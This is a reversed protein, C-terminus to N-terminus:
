SRTASISGHWSQLRSWISEANWLLSPIILVILAILLIHIFTILQTTAPHSSHQPAYLEENRLCDNLRREFLKAQPHEEGLVPKALEFARRYMDEADDYRRQMHLVWALNGMIDLTLPHDEGLVQEHLELAERHVPEAEELKDQMALTSALGSMCRLTADNEKGLIRQMSVLTRRYTREAEEYRGLGQLTTAISYTIELVAPHKVGLKQKRLQLIKRFIKEAERYKKQDRLANGLNNMSKLTDPHEGGLVQNMLALGRRHLAEGHEYKGQRCLVQALGVMTILTSHHQRGLANNKLKLLLRLVQEAEEFKGQLCLLVAYDAKTDFADPRKGGPVRETVELTRRYVQEAKDYQRLQYYSLGIRYGLTNDASAIDKQHALVAQGHPLYRMWVDQNELDPYPYEDTLRQFAKTIWKRWERGCQLWNRMALHVLRHIDFSNRENRETIFAYAKLTGIAEAARLKSLQPLLSLPIDEEALLCMSKLYAAAHPNHRSIHQFSIFWTTNIPNQSKAVHKHRNGDEFSRSRLDTMDTDSSQCFGLYEATTVNTNSAMYASAQKIALPLNALFELLRTTSEVDHTQNENLGKQLLNRAEDDRMEPVVIIDQQSIDFGVPTQYNRTTFLISGNGSFPIYNSLVGNAFLLELDDANDIILLWCNSGEDRLASKALTKVVVNDDNIGKIGLQHGIERVASEFTTSDVASVWFVSCDPHMDHVRYAAELAIQTKGIGGIGKLATRQCDDRNANPSIRQLLRRLIDERGIFSENRGFPVIFHGGSNSHSYAGLYQRAGNVLRVIQDEVARYGMDLRGPFKQLNYHHRELPHREVGRSTDLCASAEPVLYDDPLQPNQFPKGIPSPRTEYFCCLPIPHQGRTETYRKVVEQLHPNEEVSLAMTEKYIAYDPDPHNQRIATVIEGLTLGVRGRFPTGFFVLGATYYFISAWKDRHDFSRRLAQMLVLGGYSHAIFVIPRTTDQRRLELEKLLMEAVDSVVTKKPQDKDRGFWASEFGFRMIRANPAARPLMEPDTLWSVQENNLGRGTWTRDPHAGIGHIAVIDVTEEVSPIDCGDHEPLDKLVRIGSAM